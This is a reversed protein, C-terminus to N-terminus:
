YCYSSTINLCIDAKWVKIEVRTVHIPVDINYRIIGNVPVRVIVPDMVEAVEEVEEGGYNYYDYWPIFIEVLCFLM